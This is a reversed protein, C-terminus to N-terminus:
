NQRNNTIDDYQRVHGQLIHIYSKKKKGMEQFTANKSM